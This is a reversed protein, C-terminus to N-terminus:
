KKPGVGNLMVAKGGRSFAKKPPNRPHMTLSNWPRPVLHQTNFTETRLRPIPITHGTAVQRGRGRPIRHTRYSKKKPHKSM